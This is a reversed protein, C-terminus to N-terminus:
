VKSPDFVHTLNPVSDSLIVNYYTQLMVPNILKISRFFTKIKIYRIEVAGICTINLCWWRGGHDRHGTTASTAPFVCCVLFFPFSLTVYIM